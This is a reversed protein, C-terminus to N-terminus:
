VSKIKGSSICLFFILPGIKVSLYFNVLSKINFLAVGIFNYLTVDARRL